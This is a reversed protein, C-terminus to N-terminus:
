RVVATTGKVLRELAEIRARLEANEATRKELAQVAIMLIGEMDGSNITTPTGVMGVGDHGFAAFFEQAVPGYHRFQQPDHGIYNWSTINLGGIKNLVTEGDVPRFKEKKTRDSTFTYPVQGEIVAVSTNGLRIKNSADVVAGYGLATANILGDAAVDALVGIATNNEGTGNTQLAATGVATNDSGSTNNLMAHNGVATNAGGTSNLTLTAWGIAANQSGSTNNQLAGVGFADNAVGFSNSEFAHYGVVTNANGTMTQNGASVGLVTNSFSSIYLFPAGSKLLNGALNLDGSAVDLAASPTTTGIGINGSPDQTIVSDVVNLAPDFQTIQGPTQSQGYARGCGLVLLAPILHSTGRHLFRTM